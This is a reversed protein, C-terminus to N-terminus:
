NKIHNKLVIFSIFGLVAYMFTGFISYMFLVDQDSAGKIFWFLCVLSIFYIIQWILLYHNKLTYSITPTVVNFIFRSLFLPCILQIYRGMDGWENGLIFVYVSDPIFYFPVIIVFCICSILFFSKKFISLKDKATTLRKYFVTKFSNSIIELPKGIIRDALGLVGVTSFNFFATFVALIYKQSLLSIVSQPTEFIIFKRYENALYMCRSYRLNRPVLKISKLLNTLLLFSALVRGIIQGLILGIPKLFSFYFLISIPTSFISHTLHSFLMNKYLEQRNNWAYLINYSGSILVGLPIFYLVWPIDKLTTLGIITIINFVDFILLLLFMLSSFLFLVLFSILCLLAADTDKKPLVVAMELRLTMSITFLQIIAMFLALIGFDSPSFNVGLLAENTLVPLLFFPILQSAGVGWTLTMLNKFYSSNVVEHYTKKLFSIM